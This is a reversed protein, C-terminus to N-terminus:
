FPPLASGAMNRCNGYLGHEMCTRGQRVRMWVRQTLLGVAGVMVEMELLNFSGYSPSEIRPRRRVNNISRRTEAGCGPLPKVRAVPWQRTRRRLRSAAEVERCRRLRLVAEGVWLRSASHTRECSTGRRNLQEMFSSPAAWGARLLRRYRPM